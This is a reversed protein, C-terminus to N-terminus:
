EHIGTEKGSMHFAETIGVLREITQTIRHRLDPPVRPELVCISHAFCLVGAADQQPQVWGGSLIAGKYTKRVFSDLPTLWDPIYPAVDSMLKCIDKTFFDLIAQGCDTCLHVDEGLTRDGLFHQDVCDCTLIASSKACLAAPHGPCAMWTCNCPIHSDHITVNM